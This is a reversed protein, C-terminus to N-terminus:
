GIALGAAGLIAIFSTTDIGLNKIAALIVVVMLLIDVINAIFASLTADIEGRDMLKKMFGSLKKAVWKGIIFIAIAGVVKIGYEAGYEIAMDAYKNVETSTVDM